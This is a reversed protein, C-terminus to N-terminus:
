IEKRGVCKVLNYNQARGIDLLEVSFPSLM